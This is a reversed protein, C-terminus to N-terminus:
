DSWPDYGTDPHPWGCAEAIDEWFVVEEGYEDSDYDNVYTERSLSTPARRGPGKRQGAKKPRNRREALTQKAARKAWAELEQPYRICRLVLERVALTDELCDHGSGTSTQIKLGLLDQCLQKLGWRRKIKKNVGLVAEMTCICSDVIKTHSIRLVCLDFNVSHGIIITDADAYQFLMERAAEWGDLACGKARAVAMAVPSVGSFKTRWNIVPQHPRVFVNVLTEGTLFDVACLLALESREDALASRENAVGVMECDIAIAKRKTYGPIAAPFPLFEAPNVNKPPCPGVGDNSLWFFDQQELQQTAHCRTLLTGAISRREAKTLITYINSGHVLCGSQVAKKPIRNSPATAKPKTPPTNAVRSISSSSQSSDLDRDSLISAEHPSIKPRHLPSDRKHQGLAQATRFKRGCCSFGAPTTSM